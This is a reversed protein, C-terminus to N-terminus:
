SMDPCHTHCIRGCTHECIRLHGQSEAKNGYMNPEYVIDGFVMTQMFRVRYEQNSSISYMCVYFNCWCLGWVAVICTEVITKM